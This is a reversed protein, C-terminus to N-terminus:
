DRKVFISRLLDLNALEKTDDVFTPNEVAKQKFTRLIRKRERNDEEEKERHYRALAAEETEDDEAGEAARRKARREKMAELAKAQDMKALFFDREKKAVSLELQMKKEKLAKQYEMEETLNDWKFKPLYRVNWLDYYHASRRKGGVERGHLASAAKKAKKKDKFEVWGEIFKKGTNGGAKKRRARANPDEPTLYMRDTEGFAELAQRLRMPKMFPPITGLYVVGRNPEMDDVFAELADPNPALRQMMSLAPVCAPLDEDLMDMIRHVCRRERARAADSPPTVRARPTRLDGELDCAARRWPADPEPVYGGNADVDGDRWARMMARNLRRIATEEANVVAGVDDVIVDPGGDMPARVDTASLVRGRRWGGRAFASIVPPVFGFAYAESGTLSEMTAM